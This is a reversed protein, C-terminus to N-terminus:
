EADVDIVDVDIVGGNNSKSSSDMRAGIPDEYKSRVRWGDGDKESTLILESGCAFCQTFGQNRMGAAVQGCSPCPAQVIARKSWQNFIFGGATPLIIAALFFTNFLNFFFGPFAVLLGLGVVPALGLGGGGGPPLPPRGGPGAQFNFGGAGGLLDDLPSKNRALLAVRRPRATVGRRLAPLQLARTSAVCAFFLLCIPAARARRPRLPRM